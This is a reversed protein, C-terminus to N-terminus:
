VTVKLRLAVPVSSIEATTSFGSMGVQALVNHSDVGPVTMYTSEDSCAWGIMLPARAGDSHHTSGRQMLVLSILAEASM